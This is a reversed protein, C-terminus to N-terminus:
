KAQKEYWRRATHFATSYESGVPKGSPTVPMTLTLRWTQGRKEALVFACSNGSQVIVGGDPLNPRLEYVDVTWSDEEMTTLEESFSRHIGGWAARFGSTASALFLNPQHFRLFHVSGKKAFEVGYGEYMDSCDDSMSLNAMGHGLAM